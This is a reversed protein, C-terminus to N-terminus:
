DPDMRERRADAALMQEVVQGIGAGLAAMAWPWRDGPGRPGPWRDGPWRASYIGSIMVAVDIAVATLDTEAAVWIEYRRGRRHPPRKGATLRRAPRKGATRRRQAMGADVARLPPGDPGAQCPM